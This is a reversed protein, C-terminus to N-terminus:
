VTTLDLKGTADSYKADLWGDVSVGAIDMVSLLVNSFPQGPFRLHRDGKLKGHAGGVLMVPINNHIHFNGDSLGSGFLVLSHDLLTGDGDPTNRLREIFHAFLQAQFLDVKAVLEITEPVEKHHSLPHHGDGVGIERFTRDTQERGMMMTTVRTLDSQFALVQLDFMLKAHESYKAPIGAPRELNSKGAVTPQGEAPEDSKEAVQIRREIDRIADLYESLKARDGSGIGGMMRSVGDSVSDLISREKQMRRARAAADASDTDGYMREFVARPNIEMPLATAAGRWSITNMYYAGYSGDSVATEPADLAMELSGLQTEKGAERAIMQDMSVGLAGGPKPHLGTLFAAAPRAHVGGPENGVADAAKINLGTLVTLQDKFPALPALTPSIEFGVGDTRPTWRSMIRGNPVFVTAVRLPKKGTDNVAAMAPSMSDLMPLALAAGAGRLFTRRPIAKKFIMM